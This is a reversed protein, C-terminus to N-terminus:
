MFLLVDPATSAKKTKAFPAWTILKLVHHHCGIHLPKHSVLQELFTCTRKHQGTNSSSTDFCMGQIKEELNWEKLVAFIAKVQAEGTGCQLNPVALLQSQDSNTVIVPLREVTEGILKPILKGDWHVILPFQLNFDDKIQAVIAKRHKRRDRRISFRNLALPQVKQGLSRM